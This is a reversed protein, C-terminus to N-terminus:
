HTNERRKEQAHNRIYAALTDSNKKAEKPIPLAITWGTGTVKLMSLIVADQKNHTADEALEAIRTEQRWILSM